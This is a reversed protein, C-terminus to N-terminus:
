GDQNCAPEEESPNLQSQCVDRWDSLKRLLNDTQALLINIESETDEAGIGHYHERLAAWRAHLTDVSTEIQMHTQNAAIVMEQVAEKRRLNNM